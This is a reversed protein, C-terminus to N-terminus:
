CLNYFYERVGGEGFKRSFREAFDEDSADRIFNLVPALMSKVKDLIQKEPATHSEFNKKLDLYMLIEALLTLFARISPNSCLFGEKGLEWRAENASRVIDFYGIIVKKARVLTKEDTSSSLPGPVIQDYIVNGVLKARDVGKVTEPITLPTDGADKLGEMALKRFLPSTPDANLAKILASSLAGLRDKSDESGWKLDAQLAVIISRPVSKQKSNITIFLDAETTTDMNEFALVFINDDWHVSDAFSYGYLRHQGDIIWATKYRSPLYLWGYKGEAASGKNSIPDFRCKQTFNVLLNTPFYGDDDIFEAIKRLRSKTVMRQYAPRGDPHNLALHNVFSIKLLIRPTTVFSYYTFGGIRGKVAPVKVGEMEPIKQGQLLEALVQYRGAPGMHRIYSDYYNIENETLVIIKNSRAREIDPESWIINRTVFIWVIKPKFERGYYEKIARAMQGKFSVTEALDKQLSKRARTKTSKCEVVLVTEEDKAFVDIQKKDVSGDAREYPIRFNPENLEEYGMRYLLCWFDDELQDHHKKDRELWTDSKLVRGAIWRKEVFEDVDAHHVKKKVLKSNRHRYEKALDRPEELLRESFITQMEEKSIVRKAM